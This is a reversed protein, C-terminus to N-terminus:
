DEALYGKRCDPCIDGARLSSGAARREFGCEPCYLAFDLDDESESQEIPGASTFGTDAEVFQESEDGFQFSTDDTTADVGADEGDHDPWEGRPRDDSREAAVAQAGGSQGASAADSAGTDTSTNDGGTQPGDVFEVDEGDPDPAPDHDADPDVDAQEDWQESGATDEDASDDIIVADDEGADTATDAGAATADADAASAGGATGSSDTQMDAEAREIADSASTFAGSTADATEGGSPSAGARGSASGGATSEAGTSAGSAGADSSTASDTPEISRVETNETTVNEAGCRSCEQLERETVVVENGREERGREVFPEGYDHGLLSCRLGM